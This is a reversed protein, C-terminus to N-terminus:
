LSIIYYCKFQISHLAQIFVGYLLFLKREPM